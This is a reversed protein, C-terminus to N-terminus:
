PVLTVHTNIAGVAQLAAAAAEEDLDGTQRLAIVEEEADSRWLSRDPDGIPEFRSGLGAIDVRDTPVVQATALQRRLHDITDALAVITQEKAAIVEDKAAVIARHAEPSM